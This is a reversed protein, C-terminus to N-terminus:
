RESGVRRGYSMGACWLVASKGLREAELGCQRKADPTRTEAIELKLSRLRANAARMRQTTDEFAPTPESTLNGLPWARSADDKASQAERLIEVYRGSAVLCVGVLVAIIALLGKM